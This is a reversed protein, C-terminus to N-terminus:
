TEPTTPVEGDEQPQTLDKTCLTKWRDLPIDPRDRRAIMVAICAMAAVGYKAVDAQDDIGIERMLVLSEMATMENADAIWPGDYEPLEPKKTKPTM